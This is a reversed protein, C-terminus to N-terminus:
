ESKPPDAPGGIPQRRSPSRHRARRDLGRRGIEAREKASVDGLDPLLCLVRAAQEEDDAGVLTALAVVRAAIVVM